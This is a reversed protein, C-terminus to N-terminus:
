KRRKDYLSAGWLLIDDWFQELCIVGIPILVFLLVPTFVVIAGVGMLIAIITSISFRKKELM